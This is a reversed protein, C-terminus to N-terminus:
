ANVLAGALRRMESPVDGGPQICLDTVGDRELGEARERLEAVTGTLSFRAINAPTVRERDEALELRVLHGRHLKQHRRTPDLRSNVAAIYREPEDRLDTPLGELRWPQEAFAHFAVAVVPGVSAVLRPSDLPEGTERVAGVAHVSL